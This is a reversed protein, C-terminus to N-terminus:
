IHIAAQFAPPPPVLSPSPEPVNVFIFSVFCYRASYSCTAPTFKARILPVADLFPQEPEPLVARHEHLDVPGHPRLLVHQAQLM